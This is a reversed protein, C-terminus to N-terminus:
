LTGGVYSSGTTRSFAGLDLFSTVGTDDGMRVSGCKQPVVEPYATLRGSSHIAAELREILANAAIIRELIPILLVFATVRPRDVAPKRSDLMIDV